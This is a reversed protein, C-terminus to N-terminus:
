IWYHSHNIMTIIVGSAKPIIKFYIIITLKRIVVLQKAVGVQPAALGIGDAKRMTALMNNVLEKTSSSTIEEKTFAQATRRLIPNGM